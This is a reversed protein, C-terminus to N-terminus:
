EPADAKFFGTFSTFFVTVASSVNSAVYAHRGDPSIAVETPRRFGIVPGVEHKAVDQFFLWGTAPDRQFLALTGAHSPSPASSPVYIYRGDPSISLFFVESDGEVGGVRDRVVGEYSLAGTSSTREFISVAAEGRASVYVYNGDPSVVVGNAGDLGDVFGEGDQLSGLFTLVGTLSNFELAVVSNSYFGSTYIHKGDPSVAGALPGYLGSVGPDDNRIASFYLLRGNSSNRKFVAVANDLISGVFLWGGDPSVRVFSPNRINDTFGDGDEVVQEFTLGGTSSDRVFVAVKHDWYGAVYVHKGDPSVAVSRAGSLGDVVGGEGDVESEVFSLTGHNADRAFAVVSHSDFSAVYVHKGDPSVAVSRPGVLDEVVGGDGDFVAEIFVLNCWDTSAAATLALVFIAAVALTFVISGSRVKQM